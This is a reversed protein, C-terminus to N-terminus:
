DADAWIWARNYRDLAIRAPADRQQAMLSRYLGWLSRGNEPYVVLDEEFVREARAPDGAELWVEGLVQRAPRYLPAIFDPAQEEQIAVAEDLLAAAVDYEGRGAARVGALLRHLLRPADGASEGEEAAGALWAEAQGARENLGLHHAAMGQTFEWITREYRFREPPAPQRYLRDWEGFWALTLVPLSRVHQWRDHGPEALSDGAAHALHRAVAIADASRGEFLLASWLVEGYHWTDYGAESPCAATDAHAEAWVGDLLRTVDHYRGTRMFIHAPLRRLGLPEPPNEAMREAVPLALEPLRRELALLYLFQAGPHEPHRTLVNELRGLAEVTAEAPQGDDRWLRWGADRMLGEAYLTAADPDDPARYLLPLMDVAKWAFPDGDAGASDAATWGFAEIFAQEREGALTGYRRASLLLSAAEGAEMGADAYWNPRAAYVLGWYCLACTSDLRLAKGFLHAATGREYAFAHALGRDFLRQVRQDPTTIAFEYSARDSDSADPEAQKGATCGAAFAVAACLAAVAYVHSMM